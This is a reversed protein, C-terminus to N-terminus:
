TGCGCKDGENIIEVSRCFLLPYIGGAMEALEDAKIYCDKLLEIAKYKDIEQEVRNNNCDYYVYIYKM